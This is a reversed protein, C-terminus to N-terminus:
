VSLFCIARVKRGNTFKNNGNVKINRRQRTIGYVSFFTEEDKPTQLVMVEKFHGSKKDRFGAVKEGTCISCRIVAEETEQDYPIVEKLHKEYHPVKGFDQRMEIEFLVAFAALIIGEPAVLWWVITGSILFHDFFDPCRHCSRGRDM